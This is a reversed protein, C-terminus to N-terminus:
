VLQEKTSKIDKKIQTLTREPALGRAADARGKVFSLAAACGLVLAVVLCAWYPALGWGILAFVIAQVVLLAALLGLLGAASMWLGAQLKRSINATIEAKALRLEKQFLDALDTMLDSLSRLLASEKPAEDAM